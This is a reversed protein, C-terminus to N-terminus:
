RHRFAKHLQVSLRWEPNEKVLRVCWDLTDQRCENGEFAPSISKWICQLKPNPIAQGVGRVYRLEHCLQLKIAHEAIKPSCVIHDPHVGDALAVAGNTEVHVKYRNKRAWAIFPKDVQLLPEGGTCCLWTQTKSRDVHETWISDIWRGLEELTVLRGSAFETDCAFGGPSLPGSSIDCRLNCGQFRVFVMPVGTMTGEGQVSYFVENVAYATM